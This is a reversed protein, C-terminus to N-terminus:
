AFRSCLFLISESTPAHLFGGRFERFFPYTFSSSSSTPPSAASFWSISCNRVEPVTAGSRWIGPFQLVIEFRCLSSISLNSESQHLIHSHTPMQHAFHRFQWLSRRFLDKAIVIHDGDVSMLAAEERDISDAHMLSAWESATAQHISSNNARPMTPLVFQRSAIVRRRAFLHEVSVFDAFNIALNLNVHWLASGYCEPRTFSRAAMPPDISGCLSKPLSAIPSETM